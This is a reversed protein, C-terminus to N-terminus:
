AHRGGQTQPGVEPILIAIRSGKGAASTIILEGGHLDVFKRVNSMGLGIGEERTTFFPDFLRELVQESMGPGRDAVILNIGREDRLAGLEVTSGSPAAQTANSVLNVLSRVLLERDGLFRLPQDPVLLELGVGAGRREDETLSEVQELLDQAVILGAHLEVPRSYDLLESLMRELREGQERAIQLQERERGSLAESRALVSLNMKMASLPNRMEHVVGAALQGVAALKEAQLLRRGSQELEQRSRALSGVMERFRSALQGIEGPGGTPEGLSLDGDAVRESAAALEGIPRSLRRSLTVSLLLAGLLAVCGLLITQRAIGRLPAFAERTQIEALLVWRHRPLWEYAGLVEEGLYGRYISSGSGLAICLLVGPTPMKHTLAPPHNMHRSPTLMVTEEDVLYTEGTRGLGTSDALIPQMTKGPRLVALVAGITGEAGRLPAALLMVPDGAPDLTVSGLVPRGSSLAEAVEVSRRLEALAGSEGASALVEGAADVVLFRRYASEQGLELSLSGGIESESDEGEIGHQELHSALLAIDALREDFWAELRARRERAVSEMHSRAEAMLARRAQGYGLAGVAGIMLLSLLSLSLFLRWGFAGLFPQRGQVAM